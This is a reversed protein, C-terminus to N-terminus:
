ASPEEWAGVVAVGDTRLRAALARVQDPTAASKGFHLFGPLSVPGDAPGLALAFGAEDYLMLVGDDSRRPPGAGFGLYHEYFRRSRSEDTVALALHNM